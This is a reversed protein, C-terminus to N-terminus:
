VTVEKKSRVKYEEGNRQPSYYIEVDAGCRGCWDQVEYATNWAIVAKQHGVIKCVYSRLKLGLRSHHQRTPRRAVDGM